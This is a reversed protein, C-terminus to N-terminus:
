NLLNIFTESYLCAGEENGPQYLKMDLLFSDINGRLLHQIYKVVAKVGGKKIDKETFKEPAPSNLMEQVAPFLFKDFLFKSEM